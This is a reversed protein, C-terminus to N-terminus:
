RFAIQQLRGASVSTSSVCTRCAVNWPVSARHRRDSDTLKKLLEITKHIGVGCRPSPVRAAFDAAAMSGPGFLWATPRGTLQNDRVRQRHFFCALVSTRRTVNDRRRGAVRPRDARVAAVQNIRGTTM